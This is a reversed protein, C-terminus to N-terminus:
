FFHRQNQRMSFYQKCNKDYLKINLFYREKNGPTNIKQLAENQSFVSTFAMTEWMIPVKFTDCIKSWLYYLCIRDFYNKKEQDLSGIVQILRSPRDCYNVVQHYSLKSKEMFQKTINSKKVMSDFHDVLYIPELEAIKRRFPTYYNKCFIEYLKPHNKKTQFIM